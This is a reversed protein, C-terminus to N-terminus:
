FWAPRCTGQYSGLGRRIHGTGLLIDYGEGFSNDRKVAIEEYEFIAACRGRERLTAVVLDHYRTPDRVLYGGPGREDTKDFLQPWRRVVEDIAADVDGLFVPDERSCQNGEGTGNGPACSASPPPPTTPASTPTPTPGPGPGPTPIPVPVVVVPLPAIVIPTPREPLEETITTCSGVVIGLAVVPVTCTFRM